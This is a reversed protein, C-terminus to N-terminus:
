STDKFFRQSLNTQVRVCLHNAIAPLSKYYQLIFNTMKSLYTNPTMNKIGSIKAIKRLYTVTFFASKSTMFLVQYFCFFKLFISFISKFLLSSINFLIFFTYELAIKLKKNKSNMDRNEHFRGHFLELLLGALPM